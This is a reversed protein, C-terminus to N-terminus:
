LLMQNGKGGMRGLYLLTTTNDIQFHVREFIKTQQVDFPSIKSSETRVCKHTVVTGGKVM